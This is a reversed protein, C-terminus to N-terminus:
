DDVMLPSAHVVEALGRGELLPRLGRTVTEVEPLEPM